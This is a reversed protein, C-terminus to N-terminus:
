AHAILVQMTVVLPAWRRRVELVAAETAARQTEPPLAALFGVHSPMSFRWKVIEEVTAEVAVAIQMVRPEHLGARAVIAELTSPDATAPEINRKLAVYWEPPRSGLAALSDDVAVKAPHSWGAAFTSTAVIGGRRTVRGAEALFAVPDTAHNLGFAVVVAAFSHSRFPLDFADAVVAPPRQDCDVALMTPAVDVAFVTRARRRLAMSAAGTGACLDLLPGRDIAPLEAVLAEALQNYVIAAGAAWSQAAARYAAGVQRRFDDAGLSM